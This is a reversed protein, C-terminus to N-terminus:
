DNEGIEEILDQATRAIASTSVNQYKGEALRKVFILLSDYRQFKRPSCGVHDIWKEIRAEVDECTECKSM